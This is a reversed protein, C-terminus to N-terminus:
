DRVSELYEEWEIWKICDECIVNGMGCPSYNLNEKWRMANGKRKNTPESPSVKTVKM